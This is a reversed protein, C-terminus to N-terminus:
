IWGSCKSSNGQFAIPSKIIFVGWSTLFHMQMQMQDILRHLDIPFWILNSFGGSGFKIFVVLVLHFGVFFPWHRPSVNDDISTAGDRNSCNRGVTLVWYTIPTKSLCGLHKTPCNLVLKKEQNYLNQLSFNWNPQNRTQHECQKEKAFFRSKTYCLGARCEAWTCFRFIFIVRSKFKIYSKYILSVSILRTRMSFNALKQININIDLYISSM